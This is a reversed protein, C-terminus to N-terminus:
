IYEYLLSALTVGTITKSWIQKAPTENLFKNNMNLADQVYDLGPKPDNGDSELM